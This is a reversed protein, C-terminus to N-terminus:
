NLLPLFDDLNPECNVVKEHVYKSLLRSSKGFDILEGFLIMEGFCLFSWLLLDCVETSRRLRGDGANQASHNM